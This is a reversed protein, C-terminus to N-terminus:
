TRRLQPVPKRYVLGYHQAGAAFEKVQAFRAEEALRIAEEKPVVHEPQPGMGGFSASWDVILLKGGPRLVRYAEALMTPKDQAAFLTNPVIVVDQSSDMLGTGGQRQYDATKAVLGRMKLQAAESAVRELLQTRVDIATVKGNGKLARLAAFSHGGAGAGFVAVRETGELELQAVNNDPNTFQM